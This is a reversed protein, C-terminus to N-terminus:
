RLFRAPLYPTADVATPVGAIQQAILRGTVPALSIGLGEHGAAIWLGRVPPWPGILPHKDVSYPRLGVWTRVIPAHRLGPAYRCARALSRLVLDRNLTRDLGRFQRTSGILCGGHTQPQMNVAHGGPDGTTRTPDVQAAGHAFRLYSVELLQTKIPTSHHGTVVLNGARPHIPLPPQRLMATLEPAWVGATNVVSGTAIPGQATRVGTLRDGDTAFGTVACDPRVQVNPNTRQAHRLMSACAAMPLVVGDGPYFLAGPLDPALGPELERLQAPDLIDARDGNDRFQRQLVPLLEVDEPADALYLAGTPQYDFGGEQQQLERWLALSTATFAYEQPTDPTVMLHGMCSGSTAGAIPGRDLLVIRTQPPLLQALHHVVACGVIGGGAVVLDATEVMPAAM